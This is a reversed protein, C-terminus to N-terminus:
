TPDDYEALQRRLLAAKLQDCAREFALLDEEACLSWVRSPRGIRAPKDPKSSVLGHAELLELAHAITQQSAGIASKIEPATSPRARLTAILLATSEDALLEVLPRTQSNM